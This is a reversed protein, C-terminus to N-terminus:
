EHWKVAFMGDDTLPFGATERVNDQKPLLILVYREASGMILSGELHHHRTKTAAYWTDFYGSAIARVICGKGDAVAIVPMVFAPNKDSKAYAHVTLKRLGQGGVSFADVIGGAGIFSWTKRDIHIAQPIGKGLSPTRKMAKKDLCTSGTSLAKLDEPQTIDVPSSELERYATEIAQPFLAPGNEVAGTLQGDSEEVRAGMGDDLLYFRKKNAPNFNSRELTESDIYGDDGTEEPAEGAVTSAATVDPAEEAPNPALAPAPTLTTTPATTPTAPQAQERSTPSESTAPATPAEDPALVTQVRGQADIVQYFRAEAVAYVTVSALLLGIVAPLLRSM